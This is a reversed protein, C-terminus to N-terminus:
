TGDSRAADVSTTPGLAAMLRRFFGRWEASTPRGLDRPVAAQTLRMGLALSQLALVIADTSLTEDVRGSSKAADILKTLLEADVDLAKAIRPSLSEDRRAAVCAELLVDRIEGSGTEFLEDGLREIRDAASAFESDAVSRLTLSSSHEVAAMFLEQKTLWRSFVAGTSLGCRRAIDAIRTGEFGSEAFAEAAADLIRLANTAGDNDGKSRAVSHCEPEAQRPMRIGCHSRASRSAQWAPM